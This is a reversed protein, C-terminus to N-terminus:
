VLRKEGSCQAEKVWWEDISEYMKSPMSKDNLARCLDCFIPSFFNVKFYRKWEFYEAYATENRDLYRLYDTLQKTTQFDDINIYSKTPALESYNAHGYVLPIM